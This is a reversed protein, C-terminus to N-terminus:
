IIIHGKSNFKINEKNINPIRKYNESRLDLIFSIPVDIKGYIKNDDLVVAGIVTLLLSFPTLITATSFTMKFFLSSSLEVPSHATM